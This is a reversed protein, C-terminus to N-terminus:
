IFAMKKTFVVRLKEPITTAAWVIFLILINM